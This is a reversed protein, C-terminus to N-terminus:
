DILICTLLPHQFFSDSWDVAMAIDFLELLAVVTWFM